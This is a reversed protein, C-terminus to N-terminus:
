NDNFLIYKSLYPDKKLEELYFWFKKRRLVIERNSPDQEFIVIEQILADKKLKRKSIAYYDAICGLMKVTYNERYDLERAIYQDMECDEHSDMSNFEDMLEDIDISTDPANDVINYKLNEDMIYYQIGKRKNNKKILNM